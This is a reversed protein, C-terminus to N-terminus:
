RHCQVGLALAAQSSSLACSRSFRVFLLEAFFVCVSGSLLMAYFAFFGRLEFPLQEIDSPIEASSFGRCMAKGECQPSSLLDAERVRQLFTRFADKLPFTKRIPMSSPRTVFNKDFAAVHASKTFSSSMRPLYCVGDAKRACDICSRVSDKVLQDRHKLLSAQLKKGLTTTHNSYLLSALTASQSLVCPAVAGADVAAELEEFTDLNSAPLGVTVMSTLECRFYQSLPVMALAWTLYLANQARLWRRPKPFPRSTALFVAYLFLTASQARDRLPPGGVLALLGACIALSAATAAVTSASRLTTEFLSPAQMNGALAYFTESVMKIEGYTAIALMYENVPFRLAAMDISACYLDELTTSWNSTLQYVLSVNKAELMGFLYSYASCFDYDELQKSRVCGIKMVKGTLSTKKSSRKFLELEEHPRNDYLLPSDDPDSDCVDPSAHNRQSTGPICNPLVSVPEGVFSVTLNGRALIWRVFTIKLAKRVDGITNRWDVRLSPVIAVTLRDAAGNKLIFTELGGKKFIWTTRPWPLRRTLSNDAENWYEGFSVVAVNVKAPTPTEVIDRLSARPEGALVTASKRILFVVVILLSSIRRNTRM